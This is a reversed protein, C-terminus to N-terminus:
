RIHDLLEAGQVVVRKGAAIGAAIFVREGDLPEARVPRPEFREASVHEYVLDQGAPAASSAPALFPSAAEEGRRDGRARDRVPRRASRHHRRRHRLPDPDVPQPRCLGLGPLVLTFPGQRRHDHRASQTGSLAEFSLAEVWLRAPDVIHFVVANTQAIQGAVPTGDAIVGDVPALLAEPERRVKDLSARREKLGQLELRTDELQSRAVAGGPALQEYRALRREVISIQQDLEGQRQRMDSVDIAQLPPTVYALVDGKKVRRGSGRSGAPRRRSGGASRQRCMVAPTRTRSSAARCSSQGDIFPLSSDRSHPDGPHTAHKEPRVRRRRFAKAGHRPQRKGACVTRDGHDEGEHAWTISGGSTVLAIFLMVVPLSAHARNSRRRHLLAMALIGVLFGGLAALLIAPDNRALREKIGNALATSIFSPSPTQNGSIGGSPIELSVSLVDATANESVTFILGYRGPTAAWPATAVYTGEPRARAEISGAPTEVQIQAGLVPENSAFRDVYLILEGGRSVVVLEFLDSAAEARPMTAVNISAATPDHEHGEHGPAEASCAVLVLGAALLRYFYRPRM